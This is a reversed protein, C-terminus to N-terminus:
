GTLEGHMVSQQGARIASNKRDIFQGIARSFNLDPEEVDHLFAVHLNLSIRNPQRQVHRDYEARIRLVVGCAALDNRRQLIADPRLNARMIWRRHFFPDRNGHLLGPEISIVFAPIVTVAGTQMNRLIHLFHDLAYRKRRAVVLLDVLARTHALPQRDRRDLVHYRIGLPAGQRMVFFQNHWPDAVDVRRQWRDRALEFQLVFALHFARIIHAALQDAAGDRLREISIQVADVQTLHHLPEVKAALNLEAVIGSGPFHEFTQSLNLPQHFFEDLQIDARFVAGLHLYRRRLENQFAQVCVLFDPSILLTYKRRAFFLCFQLLWELSFFHKRPRSFLKILHHTFRRSLHKAAAIRKTPRAADTEAKVKLPGSAISPHGPKSATFATQALNP